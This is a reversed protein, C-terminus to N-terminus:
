SSGSALVVFPELAAPNRLAGASVAREAPVGALIRKVPVECKKGNLTVPIEEVATIRDPVHRPSLASRISARLAAQLEDSLTTGASLVVFLLLAGEGGPASTDVVLADVVEPMGEVVRYFEATGMRVGGRNLTADSRGYIVAGGGSTIRVWDGHRWVGPYVDFYSERLRSGDPDNWFRVPMSPMPETIVLEGVEDVVPHGSEDYAAVAAGLMRAQIEGSRVPLTPVSGVFATCLDTGGSVSGLLLDKKVEHYTWEFGDAPLPAGTSGITELATLDHEAGPHLGEKAASLLYPASTGFCSIGIREALRWLAHLDPYAPSGDYCVVTAGAALGSVLFNWMMWGTTTFWFFRSGPGLDTHLRLAKLHEVLIGGHGQVIAKPLGTTGSSYLIWLPHEFPVPEYAPEGAEALLEDWGVAGAVTGTSGAGLYPVLVTARLGPLEDTLQSVTSTVDFSKGGYVYGDVALLVSPEIQAFRDSVASPGFDPSCSSWIAGLSATALFAIVAYSSNPLLAAVRDGRQVGLRALGARCAGVRARLEDASITEEAGDERVCMLAPDSGPRALAHEAYNLEGGPFWRAGPMRRDALVADYPARWRVGAWDAFAGWFGELDSTSWRWLDDYTEFSRGREAALWRSFATLQAREIRDASPEWLVDGQVM